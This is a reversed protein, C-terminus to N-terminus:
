ATQSRKRLFLAILASIISGIILWSALNYKCLATVVIVLLPVILLIGFVLSGMSFFRSAIALIVLLVVIALMIKGWSDSCIGISPNTTTEGLVIGQSPTPTTTVGAEPTPSPTASGSGEGNTSGGGIPLKPRPTPTPTFTTTAGQVEGTPTPTPTVTATSGGSGSTETPTPTLTPTPVPTNFSGGGGGGGGSSPTPTPTPTPTAAAIDDNTITCTATEGAGITIKSCNEYTTAYGEASAEAITYTGPQVIINNQGDEEFSAAEGGNITFSFNTVAKNGGNDNVLTKKVILVGRTTNTFTCTVSDGSDVKITEGGAPIVEGVSEGDYKCSVDSLAWGQQADETVDYTGSALSIPKSTVTGGDTTLTFSKQGTVNFSFTGDGSAEDTKKIITLTADKANTFTCTVTEGAALDIESPNSDDSCETTLRWGELTSESVSYTGPQLFGSDNQGGDVLSFGEKTYNASFDFSQEQGTPDTVKKVIIRGDKTNTFTCVVTEGSNLTISSPSNDNDCSADTNRWGESLEDESVAYTGPELDSFSKRDSGDETTLTFNGLRESTFSFEGNDGITKKVIVITGPPVYTNTITCTATEGVGITIQSGEQDGSDCNWASPAYNRLSSESLVYTGAKFTGTSAVSPGPGTLTGAEGGNATLTWQEATAEGGGDNVVVKNLTLSPAIDDNTITCSKVDGANLTITGNTACDGSITGTYGSDAVESITHSGLTTTNQNGSTVTSDDLKLTFDGADKTGGNDNTVVKTITLVPLKTDTITCTATEGSTVTVDTCTDGTKDWGAPVTENVTYNGPTLGSITQTGTKGSTTIDFSGADGTFSFTGDGGVTNKTVQLSGPVPISNGWVVVDDVYADDGTSNGNMEFRIKFNANNNAAAVLPGFVVVSSPSINESGELVIWTAGGDTSYYSQLSEGTGLNDVRRSFRVKIDQLGTTDVGKVIADDPNPNVSGDINASHGDASTNNDTWANNDSQNITPTEETIWGGATYNNSEFGDYFTPANDGAILVDDVAAEDDGNNGNVFFRLTLKTHRDTNVILFSTTSHVQDSTLTELTTFSGGDFSYQATFSDGSEFGKVARSYQITIDKYGKIAIDRDAGDDPDAGAAGEFLFGKGLSSGVTMGNNSTTSRSPSTAGSFASWKNAAEFNDSFLSVPAARVIDREYPSGVFVALGILLGLFVKWHTNNKM